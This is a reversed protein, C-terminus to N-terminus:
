GGVCRIKALADQFAAPSMKVQSENDIFGQEERVISLRGAIDRYWAVYGCEYTINKFRGAYDVAAYFGPDVGPPDKVWSVKVVKRSEVPGAKGNFTNVSKSWEDFHTVDKMGDSFQEYALALEGKDKRALYEKTRAAVLQTDAETPAWDYPAHPKPAQSAPGCRVEQKLMLRPKEQPVVSPGAHSTSHFTYHGFQFLEGGCVKTAEATLAQQGLSVDTTDHLTVTLEYVGNSLQRSSVPCQSLDASWATGVLSLALVYGRLSMTAALPSTSPGRVLTRNAGRACV